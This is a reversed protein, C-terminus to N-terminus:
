KSLKKLLVKKSELIRKLYKRAKSEQIKLVKLHDLDKELSSALDSAEVEEADVKESDAKDQELTESISYREERIMRRLINPTLLKISKKM